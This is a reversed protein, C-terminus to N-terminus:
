ERLITFILRLIRLQFRLTKRALKEIISTNSKLRSEIAHIPNRSYKLNFETNLIDFKTKIEKIACSYGMMLEKMDLIDDIIGNAYNLLMDQTVGGSM